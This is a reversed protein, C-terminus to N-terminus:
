RHARGRRRILAAVFVVVVFVTFAINFATRSGWIAFGILVWSALLGFWMAVLLVHQNPQDRALRPNSRLRFVVLLILAFGLLSSLAIRGM